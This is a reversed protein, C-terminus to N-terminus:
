IRGVYTWYRYNMNISQVSIYNACNWCRDNLTAKEMIWMYASHMIKIYRINANCSTSSNCHHVFAGDISRFLSTRWMSPISSFNDRNMYIWLCGDTTHHVCNTALTTTTWKLHQVFIIYLYTLCHDLKDQIKYNLAPNLSLSLYANHLIAIDPVRGKASSWTQHIHKHKVILTLFM